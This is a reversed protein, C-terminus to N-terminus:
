SHLCNEEIPDRPPETVVLFDLPHIPYSQLVCFPMHSVQAMASVLPLQVM